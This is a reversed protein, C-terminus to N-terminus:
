WRRHGDAWGYSMSQTQGMTGTQPTNAPRVVSIGPELYVGTEKYASAGAPHNQKYACHEPCKCPQTPPPSPPLYTGNYTVPEATPVANGTWADLSRTKVPHSEAWAPLIDTAKEGARVTQRWQEIECGHGASHDSINSSHSESRRIESVMPLWRKAGDYEIFEEEEDEDFDDVLANVTREAALMEEDVASGYGTQQPQEVPYHIAYSQAVMAWDRSIAQDAAAATSQSSLRRIGPDSPSMAARPDALEQERADTVMSDLIPLAIADVSDLDLRDALTAYLKNVHDSWASVSIHLSYHLDNLAAREIRDIDTIPILTM